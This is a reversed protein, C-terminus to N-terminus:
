KPNAQDIEVFDVSLGMIGVQLGQGFLAILLGGLSRRSGLVSSIKV